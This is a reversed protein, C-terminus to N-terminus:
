RTREQDHAAPSTDAAAAPKQWPKQGLWVRAVAASEDLYIMDSCGAPTEDFAHDQAHEITAQEDDHILDRM